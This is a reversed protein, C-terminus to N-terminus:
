KLLYWCLWGWRLYIKDNLFAEPLYWSLCRLTWRESCMCIACMDLSNHRQLLNSVTLSHFATQPWSGRANWLNSPGCISVIGSYWSCLSSLSAQLQIPVDAALLVETGDLHCIAQHLSNIKFSSLNSPKWGKSPPLLPSGSGELSDQHANQNSAHFHYLHASAGSYCRSNYLSVSKLACCHLFTWLLKM